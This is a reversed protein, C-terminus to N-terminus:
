GTRQGIDDITTRKKSLRQYLDSWRDVVHGLSFKGEVYKRGARGMVLRKEHSLAMLKLMSDALQDSEKPLVLFGTEGDKLTEKNGGVDTAVIPLECAAAELLVMPMGEWASSMVYADAASMLDPIDRRIGLFRVRSSIGLKDALTKIEHFLDGEGVILLIATGEQKCVIAFANIMNSYDKAEQFRGVALWIFHGHLGLAEKVRDGAQLDKRFIEMEVGNPIFLIKSPHVIKLSIYKKLGAESVQTTMDCLFDTLKYWWNRHAGGEYINHATCIVAPVPVFLRSIRALLNAHVMHSHLVDPREKKLIGVLQFLARPDIVGKTMNLSYVVIGKDRLEKDFAQPTCMSVVKVNWGRQKFSISLRYLQTEAGGFTLSTILYVIKKGSTNM